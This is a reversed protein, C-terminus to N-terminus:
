AGHHDIPKFVKKNMIKEVESWELPCFNHCDVGVDFSLSNPDDKLSGHSHGYLHYAGYHSKNWTKLAYHCLTVVKGNINTELYSNHYALFRNRHKRTLKDRNGEIFVIKGKLRDFINTFHYEKTGFCFDGLHYVLDNVGVRDNWNKIMTENMEVSSTFPRKSYKIINFHNFHTDATFWTKM